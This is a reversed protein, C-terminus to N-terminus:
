KFPPLGGPGGLGDPASNEDELLIRRDEARLWEFLESHTMISREPVFGDKRSETVPRAKAPKAAPKTDWEWLAHNSM